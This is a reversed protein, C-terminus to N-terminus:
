RILNISILKNTMLISRDLLPNDVCNFDGALITPFASQVYLYISKYFRNQEDNPSNTGGVPAYVNVVHFNEGFISLDAAIIRGSSDQMTKKVVINNHCLLIAVGKSNNQASNWIATNGWEKSWHYEVEPTSFTKQLFAIDVKNARIKNFISKRKAWNRIGNCNLTLFNIYLVM